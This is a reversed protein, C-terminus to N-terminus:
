SKGGTKQNLAEFVERGKPTLRAMFFPYELSPRDDKHFEILGKKELSEATRKERRFCELYNFIHEKDYISKLFERQVSTLRM